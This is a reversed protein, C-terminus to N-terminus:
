LDHKKKFDEWDIYEGPGIEDFGEEIEALDEPSFYEIESQSILFKSYRKAAVTEMEPLAVIREDLENRPINLTQNVEPYRYTKIVM